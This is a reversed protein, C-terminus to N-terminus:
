ALWRTETTTHDSLKVGLIRAIQLGETLMEYRKGRALPVFREKGDVVLNLKYSRSPTNDGPTILGAPATRSARVKIRVVTVYQPTSFAKWAGLRLWLFRDFHQIRRKEPDIRFGKFSIALLGGPSGVIIAGIYNGSITLGLGVLLLFWPFIRFHFREFTHVGCYLSEEM